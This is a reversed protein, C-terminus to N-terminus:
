YQVGGLWHIKIITNGTVGGRLAMFKMLLLARDGSQGWGQATVLRSGM